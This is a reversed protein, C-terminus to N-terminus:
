NEESTKQNQEEILEDGKSKQIPFTTGEPFDSIKHIKRFSLDEIYHETGFFGPKSVVDVIDNKSTKNFFYSNVKFDYTDNNNKWSKVYIKYHHTTSSKNTTTYYKKSDVKVYRTVAPNSDLITNASITISFNAAFSIILFFTFFSVYWDSNHKSIYEFDLSNSGFAIVWLVWIEIISLFFAIISLNLFELTESGYACYGIVTIIIVFPQLLRLPDWSNRDTFATDLRRFFDEHGVSWFGNKDSVSVNNRSYYNEAEIKKSYSNSYPDQDSFSKASNPNNYSNSYKNYYKKDQYYGM